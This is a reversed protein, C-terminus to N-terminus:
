PSFSAPKLLAKSTSYSTAPQRGSKPSLTSDYKKTSFKRFSTEKPIPKLASTNMKPNFRAPSEALHLIKSM